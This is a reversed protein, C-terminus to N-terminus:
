DTRTAGGLKDWNCVISIREKAENSLGKTNADLWARIQAKPKGKSENSSVAQWAKNALDLEPPYTTITDFIITQVKSPENMPLYLKEEIAWDLWNPRIHKSLAWDILSAPSMSIGKWNSSWWFDELRDITNLMKQVQSKDIYEDDSTIGSAYGLLHKSALDLLYESGLEAEKSITSYTLKGDFGALIEWSFHLTWNDYLLYDQLRSNKWNQM